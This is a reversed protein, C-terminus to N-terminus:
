SDMGSAVIKEQYEQVVHATLAVIPMPSLQHLKEYDRITRTSTYGDMKPMECDVLIMAYDKNYQQYKVVAQQGGSVTDFTLGLRKLLGQDSNM